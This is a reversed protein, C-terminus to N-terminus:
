QTAGCGAHRGSALHGNAPLQWRVVGLLVTVRSSVRCSGAADFASHFLLASRSLGGARGEINAKIFDIRSIGLSDVIDDLRAVRIEACEFLRDYSDVIHYSGVNCLCNIGSAKDVITMLDRSHAFMRKRLVHFPNGLREATTLPIRKM